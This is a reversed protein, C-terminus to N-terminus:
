FWDVKLKKIIDIQADIHVHASMCALDSSLQPIVEKRGCHPGQTKFKLVRRPPLVEVQQAIKSAKKKSKLQPREVCSQSAPYIYVLDADFELM